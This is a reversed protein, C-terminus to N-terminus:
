QIHSPLGEQLSYFVYVAYTCKSRTASLQDANQAHLQCLLVGQLVTDGYLDEVGRTSAVVQRDGGREARKRRLESLSHGVLFGDAAACLLEGRERVSCHLGDSLSKSEGM